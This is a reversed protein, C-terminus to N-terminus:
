DCADDKDEDDKTIGDRFDICSSTHFFLAGGVDDEVRDPEKKDHPAKSQALLSVVDVAISMSSSAAAAAVSLWNSAEDM